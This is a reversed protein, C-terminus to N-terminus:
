LITRYWATLLKRINEAAEPDGMDRLAQERAIEDAYREAESTDMAQMDDDEDM